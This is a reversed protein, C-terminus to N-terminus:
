PSHRVTLNKMIASYTYQSPPMTQCANGSSDGGSSGGFFGGLTTQKGRSDGGTSKKGGFPKAQWLKAAEAEWAKVFDSDLELDAVEKRMTFRHVFHDRVNRLAHPKMAKKLRQAEANSKNKGLAEVLVEMRKPNHFDAAYFLRQEPLLVTGDSGVVLPARPTATALTGSAAPVLCPAEDREVRQYVLVLLSSLWHKEVQRSENIAVRLLLLQAVHEPKLRTGNVKIEFIEKMEM